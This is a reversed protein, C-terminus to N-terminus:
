SEMLNNMKSEGLTKQAIKEKIENLDSNEMNDIIIVFNSKYVKCIETEIECENITVSSSTSISLSLSFTTSQSYLSSTSKSNDMRWDNPKNITSNKILNDNLDKRILSNVESKKINNNQLLM